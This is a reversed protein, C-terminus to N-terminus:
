IASMVGYAKNMKEKASLTQEIFVHNLTSIAKEKNSYTKLTIPRDRRNATAPIYKQYPLKAFIQYTLEKHFSRLLYFIKRM